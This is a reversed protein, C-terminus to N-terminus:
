KRAKEKADNLDSELDARTDAPAKAVAVQFMSVAVDYAKLKMAMQGALEYGEWRGPDKSVALQSFGFAEKPHGHQFQETARSLLSEFTENAMAEKQAAAERKSQEQKRTELEQRALEQQRAQEQRQAERVAERAQAAKMREANAEEARDKVEKLLARVNADNRQDAAKLQEELRAIQERVSDAAAPNKKLEENVEQLRAVNREQAVIQEARLQRLFLWTVSGVALIAVLAMVAVSLTRNSETKVRGFVDGLMREVTAKGVPRSGGVFGPIAPPSSPFSERTARTGISAISEPSVERTPKPAMNLPPPQFEVRFEPGGAGVQVVDNHNLAVASYIRQHNLFTGNRSQLDLIQFADSRSVDRILKIHQRSVLDDRDSEFRIAAGADRGVILERVSDAPFEDVQHARGGTLHRIIVKQV